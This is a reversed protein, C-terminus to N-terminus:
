FLLGKFIILVVVGILICSVLVVYRVNLVCIFYIKLFKKEIIEYFFLSLLYIFGLVILIEFLSDFGVMWCYFVFIFWYWLYMLYLLKGIYVFFVFVFVSYGWGKERLVIVNIFILMGVVFFLVWLFFFYVKDFFVVGLLIFIGGVLFNNFVSNKFEKFEKNEFYIFSFICGVVLEWFCSLLLYYFLSLNVSSIYVLYIFLVVFFM